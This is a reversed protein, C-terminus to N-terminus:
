ATAAAMKGAGNALLEPQRLPLDIDTAEAIALHAHLHVLAHPAPDTEHDLGGVSGDIFVKHLKEETEMILVDPHGTAMKVCSPCRGCADAGSPSQCLMAQAFLRAATYKGVGDPGEFLLAHHLRDGSLLTSLRQAVAGQGALLSLRAPSVATPSLEESM